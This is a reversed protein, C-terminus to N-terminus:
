EVNKKGFIYIHVNYTSGESLLKALIVVQVLLGVTPDCVCDLDHWVFAHLEELFKTKLHSGVTKITCCM